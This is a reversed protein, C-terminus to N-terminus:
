NGVVAAQLNVYQDPKLPPRWDTFRNVHRNKLDLASCNMRRGALDRGRGSRGAPAHASRLRQDVVRCCPRGFRLAEVAALAMEESKVGQVVGVLVDRVHWRNHYHGLGVLAQRRDHAPHQLGQHEVGARQGFDGAVRRLVRLLVDMGCQDTFRQYVRRFATRHNNWLYNVSPGTCWPLVRTLAVM